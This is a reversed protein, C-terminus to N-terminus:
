LSPNNYRMPIDSDRRRWFTSPYAKFFEHVDLFVADLNCVTESEEELWKPLAKIVRWLCKMAQFSTLTQRKM